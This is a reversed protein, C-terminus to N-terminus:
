FKLIHTNKVLYYGTIFLLSDSEKNRSHKGGGTRGSGERERGGTGRRLLHQHGKLKQTHALFSQRSAFSVGSLSWEIINEPYGRAKLRQKFKLLHEEFTEKSSNTGPWTITEGKKIGYVSCKGTTTRQSRHTITTSSKTQKM